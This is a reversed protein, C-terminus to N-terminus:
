AIEVAIPPPSVPALEGGAVQPPRLTAAHILFFSRRTSPEDNDVHAHATVVARESVVAELVNLM